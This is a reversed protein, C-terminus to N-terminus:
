QSPSRSDPRSPVRSLAAPDLLWDFTLTPRAAIEKLMQQAMRRSPGLDDSLQLMGARLSRSEELEGVAFEVLESM